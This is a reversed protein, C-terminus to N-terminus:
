IACPVITLIKDYGIISFLRFIIYTYIYLQIVKNHVQFMTLWSYKLLIFINLFFYLNSFSFLFCSLFFSSCFYSCQKLIFSLQVPCWSSLGPTPLVRAPTVITQDRLSVAPLLSPRTTRVEKMDEYFLYLICHQDKAHWWGKVHDYWSGWLVSLLSFPPPTLILRFSRFHASADRIFSSM